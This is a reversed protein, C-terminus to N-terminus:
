SEIAAKVRPWFARFADSSKTVDFCEDSSLRLLEKGDRKLVYSGCEDESTIDRHRFTQPVLIDRVWAATRNVPRRLESM